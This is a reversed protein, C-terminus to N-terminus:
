AEFAVNLLPLLHVNNSDPLLKKIPCWYIFYGAVM